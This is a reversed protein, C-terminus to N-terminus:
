AKMEVDHLSDYNIYSNMGVVGSPSSVFGSTGSTSSSLGIGTGRRITSVKVPDVSEAIFQEASITEALSRCQSQSQEVCCVSFCNATWSGKNYPNVRGSFHGRMREKTTEGSMLIDIHFRIVIVFM